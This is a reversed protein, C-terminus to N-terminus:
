RVDDIVGCALTALDGLKRQASDHGDELCRTQLNLLVEVLGLLSRIDPPIMESYEEIKAHYYDIMGNSPPWDPPALSEHTTM